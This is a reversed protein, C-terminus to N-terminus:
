FPLEPTQFCDLLYDLQVSQKLEERTMFEEREAVLLCSRIFEGVNGDRDENERLFAIVQDM